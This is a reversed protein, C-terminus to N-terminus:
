KENPIKKFHNLNRSINELSLRLIESYSWVQLSAVNSLDWWSYILKMEPIESKEEPTLLKYKLLEKWSNTYKLVKVYMNWGVKKEKAMTMCKINTKTLLITGKCFNLNLKDSCNLTM